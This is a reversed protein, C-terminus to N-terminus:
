NTTPFNLIPAPGKDSPNLNEEANEHDIELMTSAAIRLTKIHTLAYIPLEMENQNVLVTPLHAETLALAERCDRAWCRVTVSVVHIDDLNRPNVRLLSLYQLEMLEPETANHLLAQILEENTGLDQIAPM